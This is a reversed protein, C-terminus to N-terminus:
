AVNSTVSSGPIAGTINGTVCTIFHGTAGLLNAAYQAACNVPKTFIDIFWFFMVVTVISKRM